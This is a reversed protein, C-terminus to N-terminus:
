EFDIVYNNYTITHTKKPQSTFVLVMGNLNVSKSLLSYGFQRLWQRLITICADVTIDTVYKTYKNPYYYPILKERIEKIKEITNYTNLHPKTFYIPSKEINYCNFCELVLKFEILTPSKRFIQAM